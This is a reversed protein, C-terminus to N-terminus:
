HAELPFRIETVYDGSYSTKIEAHHQEIIQNQIIRRWNVGVDSNCEEDTDEEPAWGHNEGRRCVFRLCIQHEQSVYLGIDVAGSNRVTSVCDKIMWEILMRLQGTIGRVLLGETGCFSFRISYEAYDQRALELAERTLRAVNVRGLERSQYVWALEHMGHLTKEIQGLEALLLGVENQRFMVSSNYQQLFGKVTTLPNGIEHIVAGLLKEMERQRSAALRRYELRIEATVDHQMCMYQKEQRHNDKIPFIVTHVWIDEGAKSRNQIMGRWIGNKELVDWISKYFIDSHAGSHVTRHTGGILEGREYGTVSCFPDNVYLIRGKADTISLISYDKEGIGKALSVFDSKKEQRM